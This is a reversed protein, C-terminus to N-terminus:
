ILTLTKSFSQFAASQREIHRSAWVQFSKDCDCQSFFSTKNPVIDSLFPKKAGFARKACIFLLLVVSQLFNQM